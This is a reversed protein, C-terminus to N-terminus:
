VAGIAGRTGPEDRTDVRFQAFFWRHMGREVLVIVDV